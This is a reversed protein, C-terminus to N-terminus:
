DTKRILQLFILRILVILIEKSDNFILFVVVLFLSSFFSLKSPLFIDLCFTWAWIYLLSPLARLLCPFRSKELLYTHGKSCYGENILELKGHDILKAAPLFCLGGVDQVDDEKKKRVVEEEIEVEVKKLKKNEEVEDRQNWANGGKVKMRRSKGKIKDWFCRETRKSFENEKTNEGLLWKERKRSILVLWRVSDEGNKREQTEGRALRGNKGMKRKREAGKKEDIRPFVCKPPVAAFGDVRVKSTREKAGKREHEERM